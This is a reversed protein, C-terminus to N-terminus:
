FSFSSIVQICGSNLQLKVSNPMVRQLRSPRRRPLLGDMLYCAKTFQVKAEKASYEAQMSTLWHSEWIWWHCLSKVVGETLAILCQLLLLGGNRKFFNTKWKTQWLRRLLHLLACGFLLLSVSGVAIGLRTSWSWPM